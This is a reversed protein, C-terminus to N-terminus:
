ALLNALAFSYFLSSDRSQRSLEETELYSFYCWAFVATVRGNRSDLIKDYEIKASKSVGNNINYDFVFQQYGKATSSTNYNYFIARSTFTYESIKNFMENTFYGTTSRTSIPTLWYSKGDAKSRYTVTNYWSDFAPSGNEDVYRYEIRDIGAVGYDEATVTLETTKNFFM